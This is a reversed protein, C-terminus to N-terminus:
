CMSAKIISELSKKNQVPVISTECSTIEVDSDDDLENIEIVDKRLDKDEHIIVKPETIIPDYNESDTACHNMANVESEVETINNEQPEKTVTRNTKDEVRINEDIVLTGDTDTDDLCGETVLNNNGLTEDTNNICKTVKESVEKTYIKNKKNTTDDVDLLTIENSTNKNIGRTKGNSMIVHTNKSIYDADKALPISYIKNKIIDNSDNITTMQRPVKETIVTTEKQIENLITESTVVSPALDFSEMYITKQSKKPPKDKESEPSLLRKRKVLIPKIPKSKKNCKKNNNSCDSESSYECETNNLNSGETEEAYDQKNKFKLTM